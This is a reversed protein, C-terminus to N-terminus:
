RKTVVGVNIKSNVVIDILNKKIKLNIPEKVGVSYRM